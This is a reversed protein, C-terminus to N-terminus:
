ITMDETVVGQAAEVKALNQEVRGMDVTPGAIMEGTQITRTPAGTIQTATGQAAQLDGVATATPVAEAAKVQAGTSVTGQAPTMQQTATRVAPAAEVAQMTVTPTITPAAATATPGAQTAVATTAQTPALQTQVIQGAQEQTLAPKVAPVAPMEPTVSGGEQYKRVVGGRAMFKTGILAYKRAESPSSNLYEDFMQMPGEYGMRRAVMERQKETFTKDAM